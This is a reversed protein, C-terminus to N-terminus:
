LGGTMLVVLLAIKQSFKVRLPRLIWVPLALIIFDTAVNFAALALFWAGINM